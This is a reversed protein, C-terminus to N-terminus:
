HKRNPRVTPVRFPGIHTDRHVSGGSTHVRCLVIAPGVDDVAAAEGRKAARLLPVLEVPRLDDPRAGVPPALAARQLRARHVQRRNDVGEIELRERTSRARADGDVARGRGFGVNVSSRSRRRVRDVPVRAGDQYGVRQGDVLLALPHADRHRFRALGRRPGVVVGREPRQLPQPALRM